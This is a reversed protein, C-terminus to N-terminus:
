QQAFYYWPNGAAGGAAAKIEVARAQWDDFGPASGTASSWSSVGANSDFAAVNVQFGTPNARQTGGTPTGLTGSGWGHGGFWVVWSTGDTVELTLAPYTLTTGGAAGESNAGIPTAHIGRYVLVILGQANTWTGSTESGSAAIKYGIRSAVDGGSAVVNTWGAPLSPATPSEERFAFALLLDDAAHAGLTVSTAYAAAASIFSVAVSGGGGDLRLGSPPQPWSQPWAPSVTALVLWCALLLRTM